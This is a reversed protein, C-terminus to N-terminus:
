RTQQEVRKRSSDAGYIGYLNFSMWAARALELTLKHRAHTCPSRQCIPMNPRAQPRAMRHKFFFSLVKGTKRTNAFALCRARLHAFFPLSKCTISLYIKIFNEAHKQQWHIKLPTGNTDIPRAISHWDRAWQADMAQGELRARAALLRQDHRAGHARRAEVCPRRTPISRKPNHSSM